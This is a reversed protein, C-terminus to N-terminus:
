RLADEVPAPQAAELLRSLVKQELGSARMGQKDGKMTSELDCWIAGSIAHFWRANWMTLQPTRRNLLQGVDLKKPPTRSPARAYLERYEAVATEVTYLENLEQVAAM